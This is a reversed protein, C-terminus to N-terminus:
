VNNIDSVIQEPAGAEEYLKSHKTVFSTLREWCAKGKELKPSSILCTTTSLKKTLPRHQKLLVYPVKQLFQSRWSGVLNDHVLFYIFCM